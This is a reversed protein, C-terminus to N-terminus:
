LLRPRFLLGRALPRVAEVRDAHTVELIVQRRRVSHNSARGIAVIRAVGIGLWLRLQIKFRKVLQFPDM